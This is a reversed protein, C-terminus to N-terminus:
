HHGTQWWEPFWSETGTRISATIVARHQPRPRFLRCRVQHHLRHQPLVQGDPRRLGRDPREVGSCPLLQSRLPCFHLQPSNLLDDLLLSGSLFGLFLIGSQFQRRFKRMLTRWNRLIFEQRWSLFKIRWPAGCTIWLSKWQSVTM